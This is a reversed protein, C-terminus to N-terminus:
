LRSCSSIEARKESRASLMSTRRRRHRSLARPIITKARSLVGSVECLHQLECVLNVTACSPSHQRRLVVSRAHADVSSIAFRKLSYIQPHHTPQTSHASRKFISRQSSLDEEPSNACASCRLVSRTDFHLLTCSLSLTFVKCKRRHLAEVLEQASSMNEGPPGSTARRLWIQVTEQHEAPVQLFCDTARHM